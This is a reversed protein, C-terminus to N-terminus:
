FVRIPLYSQVGGVTDNLLLDGAQVWCHASFPTLNVGFVLTASIGRRRLFILLSLSDLLCITDVPVYRRARRFFLANQIITTNSIDASTQAPFVPPLRSQLSKHSLGGKETLVIWAVECIGALTVPPEPQDLELVSVVAPSHDVPCWGAADPACVELVGLQILRDAVAQDVKGHKSGFLFPNELDDPLHFYRDNSVDFFVPREALLCYSIHPALRLTM